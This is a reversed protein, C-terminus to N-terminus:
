PRLVGRAVAWRRALMDAAISLGALAALAHLSAGGSQDRSALLAVAGCAAVACWYLVTIRGHSMGASIALQYLHEMHGVLLSRGRRVRFLLTLLADALLPFFLIPPVFPSLNTRAIVILSAFAAVAAAFLAGSDGAFLRGCPFNWLLFGILAGAGCLAIAAGSPSDRELAIAALAILGIAVSGMALGNAGDMFNVVNLLTFMWLATGFLGVAYPLQVVVGGLPLQQIVGATMAATLSLAAYVVFKFRAGLHRTDDIFGVILLPYAFLASIWLLMVGQSTVVHRWERSVLSLAIMGAAFGAGIGVGGSTPTPAGHAKRAETPLDLPGAAIMVRCAFWSTVLAIAVAGALDLLV